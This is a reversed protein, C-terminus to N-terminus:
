TRPVSPAHRRAHSRGGDSLLHLDRGPVRAGVRRGPRGTGHPTPRHPCQGDGGGRLDRGDVRGHGRRRRPTRPRRHRPQAPLREPGPPAPRLISRRGPARHPRLRLPEDRGPPPSARGPVPRRHGPFSTRGPRRPHVRHDRGVVRGPPPAGRGGRPWGPGVGREGPLRGPVPLPRRGRRRRARGVGIGVLRQPPPGRAARGQGRTGRCRGPAQRLVAGPVDDSLDLVRLGELGPLPGGTM